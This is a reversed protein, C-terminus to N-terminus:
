ENITYGKQALYDEYLRNFSSFFYKYIVDANTEKNVANKTESVAQHLLRTIEVEDFKDGLQTKITNLIATPVKLLLVQISLSLPLTWGKGKAISGNCYNDIQGSETLIKKMDIKNNSTKNTEQGHIGATAIANFHVVANNALEEISHLGTPNELNMAVNVIAQDFYKDIEEANYSDGLQEKMQTHIRQRLQDYMKNIDKNDTDNTWVVKGNQITFHTGVLNDGGHTETTGYGWLGQTIETVSLNVNKTEEIEVFKEIKDVGQSALLEKILEKAKTYDAEPTASTKLNDLLSKAEIYQPFYVYQSNISALLSDVKGQVINAMVYDAAADFIADKEEANAYQGAAELTEKIKEYNKTDSETLVDEKAYVNELEKDSKEVFAAFETELDTGDGEYQSLFATKLANLRELRAEPDFLEPNPEHTRAEISDDIYADLQESYKKNDIFKARTKVAESLPTTGDGYEDMDGILNGIATKANNIIEQMKIPDTETQLLELAKQAVKYNTDNKYEPNLASMFADFEDNELGGAMIGLIYDTAIGKIEAYEESTIYEADAKKTAETLKEYNADTNNVADTLQTDVAAQAAKREELKEAIYTEFGAYVESTDYPTKVNNKIYDEIYTRANTNIYFILSKKGSEELEGSELLGAVYTEIFSDKMKTFYTRLEVANKATEPVESSTTPVNAAPQQEVPKASGTLSLYETDSFRDKFQFLSGEAEENSIQGDKNTDLKAIEEVSLKNLFLNINGLM